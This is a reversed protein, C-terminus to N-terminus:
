VIKRGNNQSMTIMKKYKSASERVQSAFELAQIKTYILPM